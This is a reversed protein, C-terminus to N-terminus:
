FGVVAQIVYGGFQGGRFLNGTPYGDYTQNVIEGKLLINRTLFWGAGAAVRTVTQETTANIFNGQARNYRVGLYVNEKEGFRYLGDVAIQNFKRKPTNSVVEARTRGNGGEYTGFFEFGYAKFFGNFQYATIQNANAIPNIRGSTFNAVATASAPEMVLVYNSGTRDGGFLTSRGSSSNTYLSAAGRFRIKEDIRKDYAAKFYYSPNRKYTNTTSNPELPRQVNGNILGNTIGVMGM